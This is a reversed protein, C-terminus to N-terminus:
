HVPIYEYLVIAFATNTSQYTNYKDKMNVSPVKWFGEKVVLITGPTFETETFETFEPTFETGPTFQPTLQPTFELPCDSTSPLIYLPKRLLLIMLSHHYQLSASICQRYHRYQLWM